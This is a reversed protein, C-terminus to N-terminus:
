VIQLLPKIKIEVVDCWRAQSLTYFVAAAVDEAKLMEHKEQKKNQEEADIDHLDSVVAGPEILTIKIGLENVEKRLSGSFGQIGSKTAVYVSSNKERVDASMSGINVIHGSRHQRMRDIAHWTCAMYSLLNTKTVLEWDEYSGEMI